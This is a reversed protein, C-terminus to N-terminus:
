AAAPEPSPKSERVMEALVDVDMVEEVVVSSRDKYTNKKGVVILPRRSEIMDKYQPYIHSFFTCSWENPGYALDVFCMKGGKKDVIEKTAVVEGGVTVRTDEIESDFEEETWIRPDLVDAYNTIALKSTLSVGIFERELEDIREETFDDRAGFRDFAGACVLAAKSTRNCQKAM